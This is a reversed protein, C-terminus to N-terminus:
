IQLQQPNSEKRKLHKKQKYILRKYHIKYPMKIKPYIIKRQHIQEMIKYKVKKLNKNNPIKNM